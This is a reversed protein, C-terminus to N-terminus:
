LLIGSASQKIFFLTKTKYKNYQSISTSMFSGYTRAHTEPGCRLMDSINLRTHGREKDKHLWWSETTSVRGNVGGHSLKVFSWRQPDCNCWTEASLVMVRPSIKWWLSLPVFQIVSYCQAGPIWSLKQGKAGVWSQWHSFSMPYHKLSQHSHSTWYVNVIGLGCITPSIASSNPPPMSLWWKQMLKYLRLEKRITKISPVWSSTKKTYLNRGGPGCKSKGLHSLPVQPWSDLLVYWPQLVLWENWIEVSHSAKKTAM